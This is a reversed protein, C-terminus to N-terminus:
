MPRYLQICKIQLMRLTFSLLIALRRFSGFRGRKGYNKLGNPGTPPWLKPLFNCATYVAQLMVQVAINRVSDTRSELFTPTGPLFSKSRKM